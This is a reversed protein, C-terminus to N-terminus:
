QQILMSEILVADIKAPAMVTNFRKLLEQRLRFSGASGNLDEIRLERLFAQYQDKLRPMLEPVNDFNGAEHSELALEIELFPPRGGDGGALNVLQKPMMYYCPNGEECDAAHGVDAEAGAGGEGEKKAGGEGGEGHGGGEEGHGGEAKKKEKPKKAHPDPAEAAAAPKSLLMAAAAGGGGIVLVAPLVIFLILTKGAMKKKAPAEGEAGEPKDAEPAKKEKKGSMTHRERELGGFVTRSGDGPLNSRSQNLFPKQARCSNGV